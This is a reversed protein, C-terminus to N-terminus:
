QVVKDGHSELKVLVPTERYLAPMLTKLSAIKPLDYKAIYGSDPHLTAYNQHYDEAAYFGQLASVETVIKRPFVQAADLQVVYAETLQRQAQDQYFVASRYQPGVDPSQRNLQTPDHAVSFYIQLLQAYSIQAPDFSVQVAEAHGTGGRSVLDYNAQAATGGAYGSVANIVGRTHQFVAQVGWFCGGAFVATQTAEGPTKFASLLAASPAPIAQAKGAVASPSLYFAIAVVAAAFLLGKSPGLTASIKELTSPVPKM